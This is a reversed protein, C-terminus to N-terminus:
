RSTQRLVNVDYSMLPFYDHLAWACKCSIVEKVSSYDDSISLDAYVEFKINSILEDSFFSTCNVSALEKTVLKLFKGHSKWFLFIDIYIKIWIYKMNRPNEQIRM